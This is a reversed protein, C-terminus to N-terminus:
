IVPYWDEIFDDILTNLQKENLTEVSYGTGKLYSKAYRDFAKTNEALSGVDIPDHANNSRKILKSSLTDSIAKGSTTLNENKYAVKGSKFVGKALQDMDYGSDAIATHVGIEGRKAVFRLVRGSPASFIDGARTNMLSAMKNNYDLITKSSLKGNSNYSIDLERDIFSELDGQISKYIKTKIKEGKTSAWKNDKKDLRAQGAATLSGDPNQYRRIGWRQGLIGHHSLYTQNM